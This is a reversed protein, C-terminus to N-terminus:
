SEVRLVGIRAAQGPVTTGAVPFDDVRGFSLSRVARQTQGIPTHSVYFTNGRQLALTDPGTPSAFSGAVPFDDVRGFYSSRVTGGGNVNSSAAFYQSGRALAITDGGKGDWDGVLPFDSARGFAFSRVGGGGDVLRSALYFTNGRTVGPTDKGDGDWDGCLPFDDPRGLGVTVAGSDTHFTFRGNIFTAPRDGKGDVDCVLPWDTGQLTGRNQFQQTSGGTTPTFYWDLDGPAAAAPAIPALLAVAAATAAAALVSRLTM